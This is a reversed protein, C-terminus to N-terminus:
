VLGSAIRIVTGCNPCRRIASDIYQHGFWVGVLGAVIAVVPNVRHGFYAAVAGVALKGGVQEGVTLGCSPCFVNM